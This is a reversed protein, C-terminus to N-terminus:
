IFVLLTEALSLILFLLLLLKSANGYSPILHLGILSGNDDTEPVIKRYRDNIDDSKTTEERVSARLRLGGFGIRPTRLPPSLLRSHKTALSFRNCPILITAGPIRLSEM